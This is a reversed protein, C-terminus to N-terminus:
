KSTGRIIKIAADLQDDAGTLLAKRTQKVAIDPIVGRGELLVNNPTRYDSVAYQFIAGTPLTDFVSPLVGGVSTEGVIIARGIDQMGGAFVESTSGSGYDILIVVKGAFANEQPFAMFSTTGQRTRMTGLSAEKTIMMGALGPAMGGIGGPNGRLDIILGKSDIHERVAARLKSIQPMIWMNFRIYGIDNGLKKSDFHVRQAPFNGFPQSMQGLFKQSEFKYSRVTNSGDVFEAEALSGPKGNLKAELHREIYIKKTAESLNRGELTKSFEKLIDSVSEGGISRLLYGPKIGASEGASGSAIRNVVPEGDLMIIDIGSYGTENNVQEATLRRPFIGFHSLKLEGLMQRLIGHLEDDTSAKKALPEYKIKVANWDVGGFTPDYHRDNITNWVKEFSAIRKSAADDAPGSIVVTPAQAFAAAAFLILYIPLTRFVNLKM